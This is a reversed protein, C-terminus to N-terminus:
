STSGGNCSRRQLKTSFSKPKTTEQQSSSLKHPLRAPSAGLLVAITSQVSIVYLVYVINYLVSRFHICCHVAHFAIIPPPHVVICVSDSYLSM